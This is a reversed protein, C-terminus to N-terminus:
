GQMREVIENVKAIIEATTATSALPKVQGQRRGTLIELNEKVAQDFGTRPQDPRPVQPIAPKKM